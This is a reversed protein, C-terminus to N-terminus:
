HLSNISLTCVYSITVFYMYLIHAVRQASCDNPVAEMETCGGAGPVDVTALGSDERLTPSKGYSLVQHRTRSKDSQMQGQIPDTVDIGGGSDSCCDRSPTDCQAREGARDTARESAPLLLNDGDLTM